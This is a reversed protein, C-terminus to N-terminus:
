ARMPCGASYRKGLLSHRPLERANPRLDVKFLTLQLCSLNNLAEHGKTQIGRSSRCHGSGQPTARDCEAQHVDGDLQVTRGLRLVEGERGQVRCAHGGQLPRVDARFVVDGDVRLLHHFAELVCFALVDDQFVLVELFDRQLRRFRELDRAEDVCRLNRRQIPLPVVVEPRLLDAQLRELEEALGEHPRSFDREGARDQPLFLLEDRDAREVPAQDERREHVLILHLRWGLNGRGPGDHDAVRFDVERELEDLRERRLEVGRLESIPVSVRQHCKDLRFDLPFLQGGHCLDLGPRGLVQHGRQLRAELGRLGASRIAGNSGYVWTILGISASLRWVGNSEFSWMKSSFHSPVRARAMTRSPSRKWFRRRDYTSDRYGSRATWVRLGAIRSPSITTMFPGRGLKSFSCCRSCALPWILIWWRAFVRGAVYM